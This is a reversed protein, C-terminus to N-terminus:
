KILHAKAFRFEFIGAYNKQGLMPQNKPVVKNLDSERMALSSLAAAMWCNGLQGQFVHFGNKKM